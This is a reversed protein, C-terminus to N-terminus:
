VKRPSVREILAQMLQAGATIAPGGMADASLTDFPGEGFHLGAPTLMNIRVGHEPPPGPREGKWPGIVDVIRQCAGLLDDIHRDMASERTDWVIVNGGHNIYRASHDAYAALVDLGDSLSVELVVGYVRKADRAPPHVGLDRLSHWARLIQRSEAARNQTIHELAEVAGSVNGSGLCSRAREFSALPERHSWSDHPRSTRLPADAFLLDRIDAHDPRDSGTSTM